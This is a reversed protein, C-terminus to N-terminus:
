EPFSPTVSSATKGKDAKGTSWPKNGTFYALAFVRLFESVHANCLHVMSQFVFPFIDADIIVRSIQRFLNERELNIFFLKALFM